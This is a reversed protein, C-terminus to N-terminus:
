LQQYAKAGASILEVRHKNISMFDKEPPAEPKSYIAKRVDSDEEFNVVEM